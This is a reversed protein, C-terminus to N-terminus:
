VERGHGGCSAHVPAVVEWLEGTRMANRANYQTAWEAVDPCGAPPFAVDPVVRLSGPVSAGCHEERVHTGARALAMGMGGGDLVLVGCVACRVYTM